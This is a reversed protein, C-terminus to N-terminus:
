SCADELGQLFNENSQIRFAGSVMHEYNDTIGQETKQLIKVMDDLPLNQLEKMLEHCGNVREFLTEANSWSLDWCNRFVNFGIKEMEENMGKCGFSIFPKKYYIPIMQKEDAYGYGEGEGGAIIAININDYLWRAPLGKDSVNPMDLIHTHGLATDLIKLFTEDDLYNRLVDLTNLILHTQYISEQMGIDNNELMNKIHLAKLSWNRSYRTADLTESNEVLYSMIMRHPRPNRMTLLFKNPCTIYDPTHRDPEEQQEKFHHEKLELVSKNYHVRDFYWLKNLLTVNPLALIKEATETIQTHGSGSLVFTLDSFKKALDLIANDTQKFIFPETTTYILIIKKNNPYNKQASVCIKSVTDLISEFPTSQFDIPFLCIEGPLAPDYISKSFTFNRLKESYSDKWYLLQTIEEFTYSEQALNVGSTNRDNYKYIIRFM